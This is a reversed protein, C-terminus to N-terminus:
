ASSAKRLRMLFFGDMSGSSPLTRYTGPAIKWENLWEPGDEFQFGPLADAYSRISLTEERTITCVSYVIRGSNECLEAAARLLDRQVASIRAADEPKARWKLDPHRRLTGLGTCPADLLVRDFRSSFPIRLADACVAKVSTLGLRSVNEVIQEARWPVLDTGVVLGKDEMLQALHTTKGGPAACMDLVKEGPSPEVLHAAIMSATDQLIYAGGQFLKTRLPSGEVVTLEEPVKTAKHATVGAQGLRELVQEPSHRLTNVRITVPAQEASAKCMSSATDLGFLEIWQEVIWDPLSYRVGLYRVAKDESPLPVDEIKQPVRKLVANVLRATGPHGRKKALDVSTHVMAPFTVQRCFLAQFVGMRLIAHIPPPLEAIPQQLHRQLVHDCLRQHRVTGYCLQTLFRNGRESLDKRRVTKDISDSLFVNRQFVRLLVDIAADRVADVSM